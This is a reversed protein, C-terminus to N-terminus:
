GIINDNDGSVPEEYTLGQEIAKSEIEKLLVTLTTIHEMWDETFPEKKEALERYAELQEQTLDKALHLFIRQLRQMFGSGIEIKVIADNKLLRM